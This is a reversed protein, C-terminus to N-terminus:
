EQFTDPTGPAEGVTLRVGLHGTGFTRLYWATFEDMVVQRVRVPTLPAASDAAEYGDDSQPARGEAGAKLWRLSRDRLLKGLMVAAEHDGAEASTELFAEADRAAGRQVLLRGLIGAAETKGAEVARRFWGEAEETDGLREELLGLEFMAQGDGAEAAVQFAGRAGEVVVEADYASDVWAVGLAAWRVQPEVPPCAEDQFATDVLYPSAEWMSAGSRRLMRLVGHRKEAAWALADDVPEREMGAVGEYGAHVQVLLGQPLPGRLGCRALDVAARVLAYGRPHRDARRARQWEEWLMPGVALYGAVGEAGCRRAAETLRPDAAEGARKREGHSWDRPLEVIHALDLVRGRSSKRFEDYTDESMTAVVAVGQGTLQALLRPELGGDGLHGDLDDLWLACREGPLSRLLAPLQRLNEHRAPAFVRVGSLVEAMAALATRSKGAFADGRVVVLGGESAAQELASRVAPDADRAVYPPLQPLGKGRRTPRVGYALPDMDDASPWDVSPSQPAGRTGDGGAQQVHQVGVFQGNVTIRQFDFHDGAVAPAPAPGPLPLSLPRPDPSGTQKPPSLSGDPQGASMEEIIVTLEDSGDLDWADALGESLRDRWLLEATGEELEVPGRLSQLEAASDDQGRREFWEVFLDRVREWDEALSLGVVLVEAGEAALLDMKHEM